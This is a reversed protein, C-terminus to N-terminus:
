RRGTAVLQYGFLNPFRAGAAAWLREARAGVGPLREIQPLHNRLRPVVPEIRVDSLAATEMLARLRDLTFFRLHTADFTGSEDARWHGRLVTLRAAWHAINPVSVIVAGGPRAWRSARELAGEPDVLHELVDALVVVDFSEEPLDAEEVSGQVVHDAVRAAEAAASPSLEIGARYSARDALLALLGGSACGVDLVRGGPPLLRSAAAAVVGNGFQAYARAKEEYLTQQESM